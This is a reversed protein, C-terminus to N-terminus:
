LVELAFSANKSVIDKIDPTKVKIVRMYKIDEAGINNLWEHVKSQIRLNHIVRFVIGPSPDTDVEDFVKSSIRCVTDSAIDIHHLGLPILTRANDHSLCFSCYRVPEPLVDSEFTILYSIM